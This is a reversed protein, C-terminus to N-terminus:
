GNDGRVYIISSDDNEYLSADKDAIYYVKDLAKLYNNEKYAYANIIIEYKPTSSYFKNYKLNYINEGAIIGGTALVAGTIVSKVPSFVWLGAALLTLKHPLKKLERDSNFKVVNIKLKIKIADAEDNIVLKKRKILESKLLNLFNKSFVSNNNIKPVLYIKGKLKDLSAAFDQAMLKWHYASQLEYQQTSLHKVPYPVKSYKYKYNCGTLLLLGLSGILLKKM